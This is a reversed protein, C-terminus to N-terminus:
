PGAHSQIGGNQVGRNVHMVKGEFRELLLTKGVEAASEILVQPQDFLAHADFDAVAAIL